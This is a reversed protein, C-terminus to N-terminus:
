ECGVTCSTPIGVTTTTATTTTTPIVGSGCAEGTGAYHASVPNSDSEMGIANFTTVAIRLPVSAPLSTVTVGWRSGNSRETDVDELSIEQNTLFPGGDFSVYLRLRNVNVADAPADWEVFLEGEGM